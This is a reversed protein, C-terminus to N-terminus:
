YQIITYIYVTIEAQVWEQSLLVKVSLRVLIHRNCSFIWLIQINQKNKNQFKFMKCKTMISIDVRFEYSYRDYVNCIYDYLNNKKINQYFQRSISDKSQWKVAMYSYYTYLHFAAIELNEIKGWFLANSLQWM